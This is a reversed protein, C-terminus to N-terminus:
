KRYTPCCWVRGPFCPSWGIGISTLCGWGRRLLIDRRRRHSLNHHRRITLPGPVQPLGKPRSARSHDHLLHQPESYGMLMMNPTSAPLSASFVCYSFVINAASTFGTVLNTEATPKVNKAPNQVGVAIM